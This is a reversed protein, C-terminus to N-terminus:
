FVEPDPYKLPDRSMAWINPVVTTNKHIFYGQYIDDESTAHPLALPAVPRWRLVERLIAGVYPLLSRDEFIPLRNGGLVEDLESQARKVVDPHLAMAM